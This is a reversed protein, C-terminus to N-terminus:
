RRKQTIALAALLALDIAISLAFNGNDLARGFCGCAIDLGRVWASVLAVLFILLLAALVQAAGARWFGTILAAGAFIELWPLYLAIAASGAYPLLRFHDVDTTFQAPDLAKLVGAYIFVGGALWRLVHVAIMQGSRGAM